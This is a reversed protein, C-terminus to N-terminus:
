KKAQNDLSEENKITKEAKEDDEKQPRGGEENAGSQTHSSSLPILYKSINLVDNELSKINILDRQSIGM